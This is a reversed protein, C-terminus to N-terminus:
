AVISKPGAALGVWEGLGHDATAWYDRTKKYMALRENLSPIAMIERFPVPRQEAPINDFEIATGSDSRKSKARSESTHANPGTMNREIPFISYENVLPKRQFSTTANTPDLNTTTSYVSSTTTLRALAKKDHPTCTVEQLQSSAHQIKDTRKRSASASDDSDSEFGVQQGLRTASPQTKPATASSEPTEAQNKVQSEMMHRDESGRRSRSHPSFSKQRLRSFSDKWSVGSRRPNTDSRGRTEAKKAADASPPSQEDSNVETNNFYNDISSAGSGQVNVGGVHRADMPQSIVIAKSRPM